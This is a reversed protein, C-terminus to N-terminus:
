KRGSRPSALSRCSVDRRVQPSKDLLLPALQEYNGMRILARGAILRTSVKKKNELKEVQSAIKQEGMAALIGLAQMAAAHDSRALKLLELRVEQPSAMLGALRALAIVAISKDKNKAAVRLRVQAEHNTMPLARLAARAESSSGNAALALLRETAQKKALAIFELEEDAVSRGHIPFERRKLGKLVARSAYVANLNTEKTLITELYEQGGDIFHNESSLAQILLLRDAQPAGSYLDILSETLGEVRLQGLTAISMSRVLPDPDLRAVELLTKVDEAEIAKRAARAAARRVRTDPDRLYDRRQTVDDSDSVAAAVARWAGDDADKYSRAKSRSYYGAEILILAAEAAILDTSQAREKLFSRTSGSCASLSGIFLTDDIGVSHNVEAHEIEYSLVARALEDAQSRTLVEDTKLSKRATVFDGTKAPQTWASSSCGLLLGSAGAVLLLSTRALSLRLM